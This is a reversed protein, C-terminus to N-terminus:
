HTDCKTNGVATVRAGFHKLLPVAASGIAGTAGYVMARQGAKVKAARIDVLAYHAGETIAAAADFHM